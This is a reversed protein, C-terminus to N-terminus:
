GLQAKVASRVSAPLANTGGVFYVAGVEDAHEGLLEVATTNKSSALLVVSGSQGCLASSALADPYNAGTAVAVGDYSMGQEVSWEAVLACTEYRTDGGLRVVEVGDIAALQAYAGASVASTGGLVVVREYGAAEIAGIVDDSVSGDKNALYIPSASWYAYPSASLADPFAYGAAVFCTDSADAGSLALVTEAVALATQQRTDGALREVDAGTLAGLSSATSASVASTGGILYVCKAGVAEVALAAATADGAKTLVVPADLAGALAAASLADPFNAGTAVVAFDCVEGTSYAAEVIAQMTDYRTAGYLDIYTVGSAAGEGSGDSGDPEGSEGDAAETIAFTASVAAFDVNGGSKDTAVVTATGVETNDSYTVTYEGAHIYTGDAATLTVVPRRATGTYSTITYGLSISATTSLTAISWTITIDDSTQTSSWAYTDPDKLSLTATYTGADTASGNKVTYYSSSAVGTQTSGNYVLGTAATPTTVKPKFSDMYDEIYDEFEDVTYVAMGSSTYSSVDTCNYSATKNGYANSYTSYGIGMVQNKSYFLGTYHGVVYGYSYAASTVASIQSSTLSGSYGLSKKVADFYEKEETYWGALPNSYSWALGENNSFTYYTSVHAYSTVSVNCTYASGVMMSFNTYVEGYGSFNSDSARLSSTKDILALSTEVNDLNSADKASTSSIYGSSKYSALMAQANELDAVVDDDLDSRTLMWDIFNELSNQQNTLTAQTTLPTADDASAAADDAAAADSADGALAAAPLLALALLASLLTRLVTRATRATRAASTSM